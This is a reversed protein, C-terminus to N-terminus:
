PGAARARELTATSIPQGALAQTAAEFVAPWPAPAIRDWDRDGRGVARYFDDPLLRTGTRDVERVTRCYACGITAASLFRLGEKGPRRGWRRGAPRSGWGWGDGV